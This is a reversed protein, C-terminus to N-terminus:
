ARTGGNVILEITKVADWDCADRAEAQLVLLENDSLLRLDLDSWNGDNDRRSFTFNM